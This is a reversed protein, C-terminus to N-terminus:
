DVIVPNVFYTPFGIILQLILNLDMKAGTIEANNKVFLKKEITRVANTVGPYLVSFV